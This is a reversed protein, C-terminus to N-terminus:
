LTARQCSQFVNMHGLDEFHPHDYNSFETMKHNAKKLCRYFVQKLKFHQLNVNKTNMWISWISSINFKNLSAHDCDSFKTM